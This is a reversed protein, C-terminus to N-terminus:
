PVLSYTFSVNVESTTGNVDTINFDDSFTFETESGNFTITLNQLICADVFSLTNSSLQWTGDFTGRNQCDTGNLGQEFTYTRNANFTYVGDKQCDNYQAFLDTSPNEQDDDTIDVAEDAVIASLVWEGVLKEENAVLAGTFDEPCDSSGDDTSCSVMFGGMLLLTGVSFIMRKM